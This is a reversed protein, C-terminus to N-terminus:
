NICLLMHAGGVKRFREYDQVVSIGLRNQLHDAVHYVNMCLSRVRHVEILITRDPNKLDVKHGKDVLTVKEAVARIMDM